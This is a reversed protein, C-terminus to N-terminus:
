QDGTRAWRLERARGGLTIGIKLNTKQCNLIHNHALFSIAVGRAVSKQFHVM